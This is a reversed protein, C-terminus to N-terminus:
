TSNSACHTLYHDRYHRAHGGFKIHNWYQAFTPYRSLTSKYILTSPPWTGRQVQASCFRHHRQLHAYELSEMRKAYEDAQQRLSLTRFEDASQLMCPVQRFEDAAALNLLEILFYPLLKNAWISPKTAKKRIKQRCRDLFPMKPALLLITFSDTDALSRFCHGQTMQQMQADSICRVTLGQGGNARGRKEVDQLLDEAEGGAQLMMSKLTSVLVDEDVSETDSMWDFQICRLLSERM